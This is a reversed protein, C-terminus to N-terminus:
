RHNLISFTGDVVRSSRKEAVVVTLRQAGALLWLPGASGDCERRARSVVGLDSGSFRETWEGRWAAMCGRTVGGDYIALSFAIVSMIIVCLTSVANVIRLSHLDPAMALVVQLAMFYIIWAQLTPGGGPYSLQYMFQLGLGSPVAITILSGVNVGVQLILVAYM